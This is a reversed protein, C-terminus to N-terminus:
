KGKGYEKAHKYMAFINEVPVDPQAASTTCLIFGSRGSAQDICREVDKKVEEMTGFPLTTTVSISGFVIFLKGSKTKLNLIRQFDVGAEEQFGQLGDVGAINTLSALIPMINGDCHWIVKIGAKQLPEISSKVYPFYIEDLIRPSVMSGHDDCVDSGVWVFPALDQEVTAEAIVENQLRCQEGLHEFYKRMSSGCRLIAGFYNEYGFLNLGAHFPPVHASNLWLMADGYEDQATKSEYVFNDYEVEFNFSDRLQQPSPLVDVYKTVVDAPSGYRPDKNVYLGHVKVFGKSTLQDGREPVILHWTVDAGVNMYARAIARLPNEWTNMTFGYRMKTGSAMELFRSHKIWGGHIPVRDTEEFNLAGLAREKGSLELFIEEKM